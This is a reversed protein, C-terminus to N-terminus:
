NKYDQKKKWEGKVNSKVNNSKMDNKECQEKWVVEWM